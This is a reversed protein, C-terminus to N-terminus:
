CEPVPLPEANLAAAFARVWKSHEATDPKGLQEWLAAYQDVLGSWRDGDSRLTWGLAEVPLNSKQYQCRACATVLNTPAQYDGGMSVARVHDLSTSIDWYARPAIDMKWANHYPFQEPFAHSLLRLVQTPITQRGCWGCTFGDRVYVRAIVGIAPNRTQGHTSKPWQGRPLTPMREIPHTRATVGALSSIEALAQDPERAVLARVVRALQDAVANDPEPIVLAAPVGEAPEEPVPEVTVAVKPSSVVTERGGGPASRDPANAAIAAATRQLEVAMPGAGRQLFADALAGYYWLVEDRGANFRRWVDAGSQLDYQIARANHLKDALSVRLVSPHATALHAIYAEKRERWPPKPVVDTDSCAAVIHAVERGFLQEIERLTRAGGQDEVADHLLGAIAEDESGGDELVLSAVGLLHALYPIQTGKRQQAAHLERALRVARDFRAGLRQGPVDPEVPGTVWGLHLTVDGPVQAPVIPQEDPDAGLARAFSVYDDRWEATASFSHVLMVAEPAGFREAELLAAVTRHLLQYRLSAVSADDALGLRDLLFALRDKRGQSDSQVRWQDVAHDGFPENVKGEVAFVIQDGAPRRALVLLDTQSARSGGPLPTEHEPAAFLLELEGFGSAALASRIEAPWPDGAEWSDALAKASAGHRWHLRPKALLWRWDQAGHSPIYIRTM